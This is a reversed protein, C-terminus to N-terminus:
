SRPGRWLLGLGWTCLGAAVLTLLVFWPEVALHPNEAVIRWIHAATSLGFVASTIILYPKLPHRRRIETHSFLVRREALTPGFDAAEAIPGRQDGTLASLGDQATGRAAILAGALGLDPQM